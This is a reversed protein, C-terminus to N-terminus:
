SSLVCVIYHGQSSRLTCAAEEIGYYHSITCCYAISRKVSKEGMKNQEVQNQNHIVPYQTFALPFCM